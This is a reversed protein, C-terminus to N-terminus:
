RNIGRHRDPRRNLRENDRKVPVRVRLPERVPGPTLIDTIMAMIRSIATSMTTKTRKIKAM